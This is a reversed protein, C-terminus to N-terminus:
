RNAAWHEPSEVASAAAPLSARRYVEVLGRPSVFVRDWSRELDRLLVNRAHAEPGAAWVLVYDITCGPAERYGDLRAAPWQASLGAETGLYRLPDCEARYRIPFYTRSAQYSNLDILRRAAALRAAAHEFPFVRTSLEHGDGPGRHDFSVPLITSGPELTVAAGELEDLYGGIRAYHAGHIVTSALALVAGAGIVAIRWRDLEPRTALWLLVFFAVFLQLRQNVYGGGALGAPLLFYLATAVLAALLFGDGADLRPRRRREDLDRARGPGGFLRARFVVLAFLVLTVVVGISVAVEAGGFSVLSYLVGLQRALTALPMPAPAEGNDGSVFVALLALSPAAALLALTAARVLGRGDDDGRLRAAARDALISCGIALLAMALAVPHCFFALLLLLAMRGTQGWTMPVRCRAHYAVVAFFAALGFAFNYFGMHLPYNLALPLGLFAIPAAAARLTRVALLIALPLALLYLSVLVKEAIAPAVIRELLMLPPYVFWNPEPATNIAFYRGFAANGAALERLVVAIELHAPGDQSPFHPLWWLPVLPLLALVVFLATIPPRAAARPAPAVEPVVEAAVGSL